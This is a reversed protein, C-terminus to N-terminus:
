QVHGSYAILAEAIKRDYGEIATDSFTQQKIALGVLLLITRGRKNFRKDDGAGHMEREISHGILDLENAVNENLHWYGKIKKLQATVDSLLKDAHHPAPAMFPTHDDVNPANTRSFVGFHVDGLALTQGDPHATRFISKNGFILDTEYVVVQEGIPGFRQQDRSRAMQAPTSSVIKFAENVANQFESGQSDIARVAAKIQKLLKLQSEGVLEYVSYMVATHKEYLRVMEDPPPVTLGVRLVRSLSENVIM